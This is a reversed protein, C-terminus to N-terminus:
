AQEDFLTAQKTSNTSM